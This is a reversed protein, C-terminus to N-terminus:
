QGLRCIVIGNRSSCILMKTKNQISDRRIIDVSSEEGPLSLELGKIGEVNIDISDKELGLEYDLFKVCGEQTGIIIENERERLLFSRPLGNM